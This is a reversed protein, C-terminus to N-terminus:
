AAKAVQLIGNTGDLTISLKEGDQLTISAAGYEWWGILKNTKSSNYLVAWRFPGITGGSATIDPCTGVLKFTGSAQAHASISVTPGGATYGNGASIEAMDSKVTDAALPQENTLFIKLTDASLDHGGQPMEESFSDFYNYAQAM